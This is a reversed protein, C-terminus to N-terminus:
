VTRIGVDIMLSLLVCALTFASSDVDVDMISLLLTWVLKSVADDIDDDM